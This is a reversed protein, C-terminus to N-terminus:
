CSVEIIQQLFVTYTISRFFFQLSYFHIKEGGLFFFFFFFQVLLFLSLCM